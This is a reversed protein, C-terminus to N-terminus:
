KPNHFDIGGASGLFKLANQRLIVLFRAM